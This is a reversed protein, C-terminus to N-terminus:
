DYRNKVPTLKAEIWTQGGDITVDTRKVPM